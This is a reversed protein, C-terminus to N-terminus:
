EVHQKKAKYVIDNHAGKVSEILGATIASNIAETFNQQTGVQRMTHQWLTQRRIQKNRRILSVITDIHKVEVADTISDFVVIMDREMSSVTMDSLELMEKTIQLTDGTAASLIMALKHIHTQKRAIYGDFRESAMHNPRNRWHHKYWDEGWTKAESTIEIPGM